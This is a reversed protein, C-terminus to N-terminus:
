QIQLVKLNKNEYNLLYKGKISLSEFGTYTELHQFQNNFILIKDKINMIFYAGNDIFYISSALHMFSSRGVLDDMKVQGNNVFYSEGDIEFSYPEVSQALFEANPIIEQRKWDPMTWVVWKGHEASGVAYKGDPSFAFNSLGFNHNVQHFNDKYGSVFTPHGYIKFTKQTALDYVESYSHYGYVILWRYNDFFQHRFMANNTEFSHIVKGHYDVVKCNNEQSDLVVIWQKDTYIRKPTGRFELTKVVEFSENIFWVTHSYREKSSCIIYNSLSADFVVDACVWEYSMTGNDDNISGIPLYQTEGGEFILLNAMFYVNKESIFGLFDEANGENYDTRYRVQGNTDWIVIQTNNGSRHTTMLTGDENLFSRHIRKPLDSLTYLEKWNIGIIPLTGSANGQESKWELLTPLELDINLFQKANSQLQQMASFWNQKNELKPEEHYSKIYIELLEYAAPIARETENLFILSLYKEPKGADYCFMKELDALAATQEILIHWNQPEHESNMLDLFSPFGFDQSHLGNKPDGDIPTFFDSFSLQNIDIPLTFCLNAISNKADSVFLKHDSRRQNFAPHQVRLYSVFQVEPTQTTPNYYIGRYHDNCYCSFTLIYDGLKKTGDRKKFKFGQKEFFPKIITKFNLEEFRNITEKKIM